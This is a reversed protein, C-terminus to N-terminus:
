AAGLMPGFKHRDALRPDERDPVVMVPGGKSHHLVGGDSTSGLLMGGAFGGRGGRTGLVVLEVSRSTEVLVDVPSGDRLETEMPLSPFHSRLWDAGGADLQVKIDAFLADRDLPAPVWALSGSYQPVACIVRLKAGMRQAQEAAELVAVRAQESGDVGVAVVNEM